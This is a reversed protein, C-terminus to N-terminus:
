AGSIELPRTAVVILCGSNMEDAPPVDRIGVSLLRALAAAAPTPMRQGARRLGLARQIEIPRHRRALTHLLGATVRSLTEWRRMIGASMIPRATTMMLGAAALAARWQEITWYRLHAVRADLARLYEQRSTGPLIPGRLCDHFGASPVSAILTGGPKLVRAVEVLVRELPLIHEMVSVSVVYDFTRDAEPITEATTTHVREYISTKRALETEMPDVDLGVLRLGGVEDSLVRTLKGDGCGLDLGLGPPISARALERIEGTRWVATAPQFPYIELFRKLLLVDM